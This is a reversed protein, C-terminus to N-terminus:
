HGFLLLILLYLIPPVAHKVWARVDPEALEAFEESLYFGYRLDGQLYRRFHAVTYLTTLRHAEDIALVDTGCPEIFDEGVIAVVIEVPIGGEVFADVLDCSNTFSFHVAGALDARVVNRPILAFARASEPVVPTTDDLTGGVITTPVRIGALEMDSYASSVPAIPVIARVRPDPPLPDVGPPLEFADAEGFGAAVGLATFGGFSHGTVGIRHRAIAGEFVDGSTLSREQMLTILFSVDRLRAVAVEETPDTTGGLIDNITNGVHDPAVVVFGHSALVETLFYSQFAVGGNGHSFVVLPFRAARSVPAEEFARESAAAFGLVEYETVPAGAEDGPDVPYWVDVPLSRGRAADTAEFRAHGVAFPGEADPPAFPLVGRADAATALFLVALLAALRRARRGPATPARRAPLPLTLLLM